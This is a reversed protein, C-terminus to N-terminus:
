ATTRTRRPESRVYHPSVSVVSVDEVPHDVYFGLGSSGGVFAGDAHVEVHHLGDPRDWTVRVGPGSPVARLGSVRAPPTTPAPGVTLRGLNWSGTGRLAIGLSRLGQGRVTGLDAHWRTWGDTGPPDPQAEVEVVADGQATGLLVALSDVAGDASRGILEVTADPGVTVDDLLLLGCTGVQPSLTFALSEGAQHAIGYDYRPALDAGTLVWRRQPHADQLGLHNWERTSVVEGDISYRTGAGTGFATTFPLALVTTRETVFAAIGPWGAGDHERPATGGVWYAHDREQFAGLTFDEGLSNKTWEPRYLGLSGLYPTASDPFVEGWTVETDYGNAETDIGQYLEYPSRGLGAAHEASGAVWGDRGNWWFNIFVTDSSRTDGDQLFADNLENLRNQWAINGQETLSDYWTTRLGHAELAQMFRMMRGAVEVREAAPLGLDTEANIFWGDFGLLEAVQALKDAVPFVGDVEQCLDLTWQPLGGYAVPPLFVNGLVAVGARHAADVLPANPALVIGEGASGGWFVLEDVYSWHTFAYYEASPSGQAPNRATGAVSVLSQVRTQGVHQGPHAPAVDARSALPVVSTNFPVSPDSQPDWALLSRWVAGPDPSRPPVPPPSDPFWYLAHPRGTASRKGRQALAPGAEGAALAAGGLAGLGLFARRSFPPVGPGVAATMM